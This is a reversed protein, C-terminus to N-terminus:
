SPAAQLSQRSRSIPVMERERRMVLLREEIVRGEMRLQGSIEFYKSGVGLRNNDLGNEGPIYARAEGLTKFPRKSVIREASSADLGPVVGALVERSATNINLPTPEPLLVVFPQLSKVTAADLGLWTLQGVQQPVLPTNAATGAAADGGAPAQRWVSQLGLALTDATDAPLSASECLRRLAALEAEVVLNSADVLNRLNYRSQADRIGGKLFAEPAGEASNNRDQALLNSLSDERLETAWPETLNDVGPTRADLRLIVRGFDMLGTLIWTAQARTREATEVQVARWQQWIMGAALTSVLTLIVMALLLAAGKQTHRGASM